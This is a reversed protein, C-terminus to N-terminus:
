RRGPLLNLVSDSGHAALVGQLVSEIQPRATVVRSLGATMARAAIRPHTAVARMTVLSQGPPLGAQLVEVARSSSFLWVYRAPEDVVATLLHRSVESWPSPVSRYASLFDVQAGASQLRQALWDRGGEGRVILVRRGRWEVDALAQAWLTEADFSSSDDSPAWVCAAPVGARVLAQVTGPGTAAARLGAPWGQGAPVRAFFSAVANPSVFMVLAWQALQAWAQSVSADFAPDAEITLLPLSLAPQGHAALAQAWQSAQPQPRTVLVTCLPVV